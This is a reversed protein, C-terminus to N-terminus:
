GSEILDFHLEDIYTAKGETLADILQDILEDKTFAGSYLDKLQALQEDTTM